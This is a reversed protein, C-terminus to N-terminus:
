EDSARKNLGSRSPTPVNKLKEPPASVRNRKGSSANAGSAADGSRDAGGEKESPLGDNPSADNKDSTDDDSATDISVASDKKTDKDREASKEDVVSGKVRGDLSIEQTDLNLTIQQARFTDEGQTIRANGSM